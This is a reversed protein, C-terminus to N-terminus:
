DDLLDIDERQMELATRVPPQAAGVDTGAAMVSPISYSPPACASAAPQQPMPVPQPSYGPIGNGQAEPADRMSTWVAARTRAQCADLAITAMTVDPIIHPPQSAMQSPAAEQTQPPQEPQPVAPAQYQPQPAAETQPPPSAPLVAPPLAPLDTPPPRPRQAREAGKALHQWKCSRGKHCRGQLFAKCVLDSQYSADAAPAAFAPEPM